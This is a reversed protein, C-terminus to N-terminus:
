IKRARTDQTIKHRAHEQFSALRDVTYVFYSSNKADFRLCAENTDYLDTFEKDDEEDKLCQRTVGSTSKLLSRTYLAIRYNQLVWHKYNFNQNLSRRSLFYVGRRRISPGWGFCKQSCNVGGKGLECHWGFVVHFYQKSKRCFRRLSKYQPGKYRPQM